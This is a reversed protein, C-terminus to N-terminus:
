FHFKRAWKKWQVILGERMVGFPNVGCMFGNTRDSFTDFIVSFSDNAAGLFDRRLSPAIYKRDGPKNWMGGMVYIFEDDYIMKAVTQAGALSSDSPFQQMFSYASDAALWAEDDLDGDIEIPGTARKITISQAELVINAFLCTIFILVSKLGSNDNSFRNRGYIVEFCVSLM